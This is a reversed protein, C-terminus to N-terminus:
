RKRKKTSILNTRVTYLIRLELTKLLGTRICATSRMGIRTYYLTVCTQLKLGHEFSHKKSAKLSWRVIQGQQFLRLVQVSARPVPIPHSISAGKIQHCCHPLLKFLSRYGIEVIICVVSANSSLHSLLPSKWYREGKEFSDM